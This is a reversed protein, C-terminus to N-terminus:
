ISSIFKILFIALSYFTVMGFFFTMLFILIKLLTGRTDLSTLHAVLSMLIWTTQTLILLAVLMLLTAWMTFLASEFFTSPNFKYLAAAFIAVLPYQRLNDTISKLDPPEDFVKDAGIFKDFKDM